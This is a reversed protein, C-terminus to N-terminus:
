GSYLLNAVSSSQLSLACFFCPLLPPAPVQPQNTHYSVRNPDSALYVSTGYFWCERTLTNRLSLQSLKELIPVTHERAMLKLDPLNSTPRRNKRRLCLNHRFHLKSAEMKKRPQLMMVVPSCRLRRATISASCGSNMRTGMSITTGCMWHFFTKTAFICYLHEIINM